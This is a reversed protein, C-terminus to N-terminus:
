EKSNKVEKGILCLKSVVNYEDNYVGINERVIRNNLVWAVRVVYWLGCGCNKVWDGLSYWNVGWDDVSRQYDVVDILNEMESLEFELDWNKVNKKM